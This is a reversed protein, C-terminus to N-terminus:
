GGICHWVWTTGHTRFHKRRDQFLVGMDVPQAETRLLTGGTATSRAFFDAVLEKATTYVVDAQYHKRRDPPEMDGLVAAVSVKHDLYFRLLNSADRRALYDNATIVHVPRGRWSALVAALALTLTKGEGTAMEMLSGNLLGLVGTLQEPFPRMGLREHASLGLRALTAASIDPFQALAASRRVNLRAESLKQQREISSEQQLQDMLQSAQWAQKKWDALRSSRRQWIGNLSDLWQELGQRVRPNRLGDTRRIDEQPLVVQSISKTLM